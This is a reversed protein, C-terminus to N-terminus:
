RPNKPHTPSTLPLYIMCSYGCRTKILKIHKTHKPMNPNHLVWFIRGHQTEWKTGTWCCKLLLWNTWGAETIRQDYELALLDRQSTQRTGFIGETICRYGWIAQLSTCLQTCLSIFANVLCSVVLDGADMDWGERWTIFKALILVHQCQLVISWHDILCQSTENSTRPM